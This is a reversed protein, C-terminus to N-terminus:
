SNEVKTTSPDDKFSFDHTIHVSTQVEPYNDDYKTNAQSTQEESSNMAENELFNASDVSVTAMKVQRAHEFAARQREERIKKREELRELRDREKAHDIRNKKREQKRKGFGTLYAKRAEFDFVVEEKKSKHKSTKSLQQGPGMQNTTRKDGLCRVITPIEFSSASLSHFYQQFRYAEYQLGESFRNLSDYRDPESM